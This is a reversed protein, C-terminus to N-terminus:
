DYKERYWADGILFTLAALTGYVAFHTGITNLFNGIIRQKWAKFWLGSGVPKNISFNLDYPQRHDVVRRSFNYRNIFSDQNNSMYKKESKRRILIKNRLIKQRGKLISNDKLNKRHCLNPEDKLIIFLLCVSISYPSNISVSKILYFLM